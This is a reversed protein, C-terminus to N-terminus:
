TNGLGTAALFILAVAQAFFISMSTLQSKHASDMNSYAASAAEFAQNYQIGFKENKSWEDHKTSSSNTMWVIEHWNKPFQGKGYHFGSRQLCGDISNQIIPVAFGHQQIVHFMGDVVLAIMDIYMIAGMVTGITPTLKAFLLTFSIIIINACLLLFIAQQYVSSTICLIGLKTTTVTTHHVREPGEQKVFFMGFFRSFYNRARNQLWQCAKINWKKGAALHQATYTTGPGCVSHTDSNLQSAAEDAVDRPLEISHDGSEDDFYLVRLDSGAVVPTYLEGNYFKQRLEDDGELPGKFALCYERQRAELANKLVETKIAFSNDASDVLPNILWLQIIRFILIFSIFAAICIYAVSMGAPVSFTDGVSRTETVNM